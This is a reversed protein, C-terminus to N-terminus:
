DQFLAADLQEGIVGIGCVQCLKRSTIARELSEQLCMQILETLTIIQRQQSVNFHVTSMFILQLRDAMSHTITLAHCGTQSKPWAEQVGGPLGVFAARVGTDKQLDGAIVRIVQSHGFLFISEPNDFRRLRTPIELHQSVTFPSSQTDM